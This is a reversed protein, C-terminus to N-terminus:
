KQDKGDDFFAKAARWLRRGFTDGTKSPVVCVVIVIVILLTIWATLRPDVGSNILLFAFAFSALVLVLVVLVVPWTWPSQPSPPPPTAEAPQVQEAVRPSDTTRPKAKTIKTPAKRPETPPRPPPAPSAGGAHNRM